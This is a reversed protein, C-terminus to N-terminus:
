VENDYREKFIFGEIDCEKPLQFSYSDENSTKNRSLEGKYDTGFIDEAKLVHFKSNLLKTLNVKM